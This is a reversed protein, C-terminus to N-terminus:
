LKTGSIAKTVDEVGVDVKEMRRMAESVAEEVGSGGLVERMYGVVRRCLEVRGWKAEKTEGSLDHKAGDIVGAEVSMGGGAEDVATKWRPLFEPSRASLHPPYYEDDGSLLICLMKKGNKSSPQLPSEVSVAKGFTARLRAQTCDSSFMDDDEPQEPSHPSALSWFRAVSM